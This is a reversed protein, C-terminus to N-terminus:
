WAHNFMVTRVAPRRKSRGYGGLMASCSRVSLSDENLDGMAVLCPQVHGYPCRTKTYMEWLWWTHSFMVTLAALRQRSRGYGGLLVSCSRLSPLDEYLDGMAVLCLQHGGYSSFDEYLDGMAVLCSQVHGYPPFIQTCIEWLWWAHSIVVTLFSTKTYIALLWWAHSFMVTLVALRHLSGWYDWVM